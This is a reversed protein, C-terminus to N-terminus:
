ERDTPWTKPFVNKALDDGEIGLADQIIKAARKGDDCSRKPLITPCVSSEVSVRLPLRGYRGGGDELAIFLRGYQATNYACQGGAEEARKKGVTLPPVSPSMLTPPTSHGPM